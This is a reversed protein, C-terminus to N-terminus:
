IKNTLNAQANDNGATWKPSIFRGYIATCMYMITSVLMAITTGSIGQTMATQIWLVINIVNSVIWLTYTNNYHLSCLLSAIGGIALVGADIFPATDHLAIGIPYLIAWFAVLGIIAYVWGKKNLTRAKKEFDAGWTKWKIMLPLDILFLFVLQDLISWWHGAAGNVICFGLVSLAGLLGNISNGTMMAVTCLLGLVTALLTMISVWNIPNALMTATQFGVGFLWIGLAAKSNFVEKLEFKIWQFWNGNFKGDVYGLVPKETANVM